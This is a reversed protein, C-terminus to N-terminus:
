EFDDISNFDMDEYPLPEWSEVEEIVLVPHRKGYKDLRPKKNGDKDVTIFAAKKGNDLKAELNVDMLAPTTFGAHTKNFHETLKIKVPISRMIAKGDKDTSPTSIDTLVEGVKEVRYGFHTIFEGGNETNYTKSFVKLLMRKASM